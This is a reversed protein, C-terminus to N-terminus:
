GGLGVRQAIWWDALIRELTEEADKLDDTNVIADVESAYFPERLQLVQEIEELPDSGMLPPRDGVNGDLRARLTEPSAKLYVAVAHGTRRPGNIRSKGEESASVGGGTALVVPDKRELIQRLLRLEAERWAAQGYTKWADSVTPSELRQLVAEDLDVFDCGLREAALRGVSTKGAGRPGILILHCTM